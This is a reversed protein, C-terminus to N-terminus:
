SRISPPALAYVDWSPDPLTEPRVQQPPAYGATGCAEGAGEAGWDARWALGWDLVAVQAPGSVVINSPKLDRHVVGLAHAHAVADCVIALLEVLRRLTFGDADPRWRGPGAGHCAEHLATIRADMRAGGEWRMTYFPRGDLWLDIDHVPVISPHALSATLRAEAQFRRVYGPRDAFAGALLKLAVPGGLKLDHAAYVEGMGGLRPPGNLTYRLEAPARPPSDALDLDGAATSRLTSRFRDEDSM